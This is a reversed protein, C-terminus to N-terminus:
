WVIAGRVYGRDILERFNRELCKLKYGDVYGGRGLVSVIQDFNFEESTRSCKELIRRLIATRYRPDRAATNLSLAMLSQKTLNMEGGIDGGIDGDIDSGRRKLQQIIAAYEDRMERLLWPADEYRNCNAEDEYCGKKRWFEPAPRWRWVFPNFDRVLWSPLAENGISKPVVRVSDWGLIGKIKGEKSLIIDRMKLDSHTLVFRMAKRENEKEKGKHSRSRPPERIFNVLLRLLRDVGTNVEADCPYRVLPATYMGAADSFPGVEAYIAEKECEDNGLWRNVMAQIDLERLPGIGVLSEGDDFVPAGGREFEYKNLQLMLQALGHLVATRRGRVTSEDEGDEGFWVQDLTRGEVYTMICYPVHLKNHPSPEFDIIEPVPITTEQSLKSIILAETRLAEACLRDWVDPTGNTPIKIIWKTSERCQGDYIEISYFVHASGFLPGRVFPLQLPSPRYGVQRKRYVQMLKLAYSAIAKTDIQSLIGAFDRLEKQSKKCGVIAEGIPAADALADRFSPLINTEAVRETSGIKVQWQEPKVLKTLGTWIKNTNLGGVYDVHAVNGCGHSSFGFVLGLDDHYDEALRALESQRGFRSREVYDKPRSISM